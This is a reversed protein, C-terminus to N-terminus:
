QPLSPCWPCPASIGNNPGGKIVSASIWSPRQNDDVAGAPFLGSLGNWGPQVGNVTQNNLIQTVMEGTIRNAVYTIVRSPHRQGVRMADNGAGSFGIPAIPLNAVQGRGTATAASTLRGDITQQAKAASLGDFSKPTMLLGFGMARAAGRYATIATPDKSFPTVSTNSGAFSDFVILGRLPTSAEPLWVRAPGGPITYYAGYQTFTFDTTTQAV